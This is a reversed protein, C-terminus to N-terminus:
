VANCQVKEALETNTSLFAALKRVDRGLSSEDDTPLGITKCELVVVADPSVSSIFDDRSKILGVRFAQIVVIFGKTNTQIFLIVNDHIIPEAKNGQRFAEVVNRTKSKIPKLCWGTVLRQFVLAPSPHQKVVATIMTLTTTSSTVKFGLARYGKKLLTSSLRRVKEEAM